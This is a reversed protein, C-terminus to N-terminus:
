FLAGRASTAARSLASGVRPRWQAARADAVSTPVKAWGRGRRWWGRGCRRRHRALRWTGRRRRKWRRRRRMHGNPRGTQLHPCRSGRKFRLLATAGCFCACGRGETRHVCTPCGISSCSTWPLSPLITASKRETSAARARRSACPRGSSSQDTRPKDRRAKPTSTLAKSPACMAINQVVHASLPSRIPFLDEWQKHSLPAGVAM